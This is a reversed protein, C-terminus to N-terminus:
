TSNNAKAPFAMCLGSPHLGRRNPQTRIMRDHCAVLGLTPFPVGWRSQVTSSHRRYQIMTSWLVALNRRWGWTFALTRWLVLPVGVNWMITNSTGANLQDWREWSRTILCITELGKWVQSTAVSGLNKKYFYLAPFRLLQRWRQRANWLYVAFDSYQEWYGSVYYICKKRKGYTFTVHKSFIRRHANKVRQLTTSCRSM